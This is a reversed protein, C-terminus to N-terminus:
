LDETMKVSYQAQNPPVGKWTQVDDDLAMTFPVNSITVTDDAYVNEILNPTILIAGIGGVSTNVANTVMYVKSHSSFKVIDGPLLANNLAATFGKLSIGSAGTNAQFNVLPTNTELGMTESFNPLVVQFTQSRGVQSIAFAFIPLMDEKRLQSWNFKAEWLHGSVTRSQRKGSESRDVITPQNSDLTVSSPAPDTPFTGSM